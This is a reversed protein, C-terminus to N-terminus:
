VTQQQRDRKLDMPSRGLILSASYVHWSAQGVENLLMKGIHELRNQLTKLYPLTSIGISSDLLKRLALRLSM